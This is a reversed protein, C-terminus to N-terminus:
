VELRLLYKAVADKTVLYTMYADYLASHAASRTESPFIEEFQAKIEDQTLGIVDMYEELKGASRPRVGTKNAIYDKYTKGYIKQMDISQRVAPLKLMDSNASFMNKCIPIDFADSNKGILRGREMLTWLKVLSSYYDKEHEKLLDLTLGNIQLAKEPIEWEPRYFYFSDGRLINLYEDIQIYGVELVQPFKNNEILGTTEIDFITYIM